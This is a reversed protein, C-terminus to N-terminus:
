DLDKYYGQEGRRFGAKWGDTYGKRYCLLQTIFIVSLLLLGQLLNM